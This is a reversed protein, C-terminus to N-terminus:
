WDAAGVNGADFRTATAGAENAPELETALGMARALVRASMTGSHHRQAYDRARAATTQAEEREECIREITEELDAPTSEVIPLPEPLRSRVRESVHGVVVRGAAMAECAGVGYDGLRFQDLVIDADRILELLTRHPLNRAARFEILGQEHLKQAVPEILDSGKVERRSPVHVVLPRERQMPATAGEHQSTDVVVPLWISDEVYDQLDLTTVFVPGDFSRVRPLLERVKAELTLTLPASPDSFPSWPELERHRAPDRIDSGHFVVGVGIGQARLIPVDATFYGGGLRGWASTGSELLVHTFGDLVERLWRLQWNRDRWQSRAISRDTLFNISSPRTLGFALARSGPFEKEVARSWQWAQGATNHPGVALRLESPTPARMASAFGSAFAQPTPVVADVKGAEDTETRAETPVLKAGLELYLAELVSEQREWTCSALLAADSLSTRYRDPADLIKKVARSLAEPDSPPVVEGIGHDRVFRAKAGTDTVVTPLGARVYEFLKTPLAVEANGYAETPILGVDASALFGVVDDAAVLPILHCRDGAGLEAARGALTRAYPRSESIAVHVGPLSPLADIVTDLGRRPHVTGSYVILPTTEEIGLERRIDPAPLHPDRRREARPANLTVAPERELALEDHLKAALDPTVTIVADAALAFRREMTIAARRRAGELYYVGPLYEHCDYVWPLSRGQNRARVSLNAALPLLRFDHCHIIDPDLETVVPWYAAEYASVEPLWRRWDKGAVTAQFRQRMSPASTALRRDAESQQFQKYRRARANFVARHLYLRRRLLSRTTRFRQRALRRGLPTRAPRRIYRDKASLIRFSIDRELLRRREAAALYEKKDRFRILSSTFLRPRRHRTRFPEAAGKKIPVRIVRVVGELLQENRGGEPELAVVTVQAGLRAASLATKKIRSDNTVDNDALMVIHSRKAPALPTTATETV